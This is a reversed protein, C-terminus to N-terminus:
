AEPRRAEAQFGVDLSPFGFVLNVSGFGLRGSALGLSPNGLRPKPDGLRPKPHGLGRKTAQNFHILPVLASSGGVPCSPMGAQRTAKSIHM